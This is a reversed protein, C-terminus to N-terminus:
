NYSQEGSLKAPLPRSDPSPTVVWAVQEISSQRLGLGWDSQPKNCVVCIM